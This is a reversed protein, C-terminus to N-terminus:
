PLGGSLHIGRSLQDSFFTPQLKEGELTELGSATTATGELLCVFLRLTEKRGEKQRTGTNITSCACPQVM